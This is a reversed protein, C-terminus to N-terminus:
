ANEIVCHYKAFLLDPNYSMKAKRLGELGIDEERNIWEAGFTEFLHRAFSRNIYAFGGDRAYDGYCKEFHIDYYGDSIKSAISMAVPRNDPSYVLAGILGLEDWIRCADYIEDREVFASDIREEQDHFWKDEVYILDNCFKADFHDTFELRCDPYMKEFRLARNKKKHNSRGSLRILHDSTYLYDSNGRETQLNVDYGCAKLKDCQKELLYILKLPKGKEARDAIAADVAKKIDGEGIPFAIGDRGPLGEGTYKRYLFGGEEAIKINYKDRLLYINAPACDSSVAGDREMYKRILDMDGLEPTRWNLM